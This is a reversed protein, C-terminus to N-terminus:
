SGISESPLVNVKGGQLGHIEQHHIRVDLHVFQPAEVLLVRGVQNGIEVHEGLDHRREGELVLGAQKVLLFVGLRGVVHQLNAGALVHAPLQFLADKIRRGLADQVPHAVVKAVHGAGVEVVVHLVDHGLVHLGARETDADAVENGVALGVLLDDGADLFLLHFHLGDNVLHVQADKFVLCGVGVRDVKFLLDAVDEVLGCFVGTFDALFREALVVAEEHNHLRAGLAVQDVDRLHHRAQTLLRHVALPNGVPKIVAGQRMEFLVVVRGVGPPEHLIGVNGSETGRFQEKM